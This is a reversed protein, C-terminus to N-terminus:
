SKRIIFIGPKGHVAVHGKCREYRVIEQNELEDLFVLGVWRREVISVLWRRHQKLSGPVLTGCISPHFSSALHSGMWGTLQLCFDDCRLQPRRLMSRCQWLIQRPCQMACLALGALQLLPRRLVPSRQRLEPGTRRVAHLPLKALQLLARCLM